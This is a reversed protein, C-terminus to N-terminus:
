DKYKDNFANDRYGEFDGLHKNPGLLHHLSQEM